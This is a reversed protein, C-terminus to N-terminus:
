AKMPRSLSQSSFPHKGFWKIPKDRQWETCRWNRHSTRKEGTPPTMRVFSFAHDRGDSQCATIGAWRHTSRLAPQPRLPPPPPLHPSLRSRPLSPASPSLLPAACPPRAAQNSRLVSARSPADRAPEPVASLCAPSRAPPSPTRPQPGQTGGRPTRAASIQTLPPRACGGPSSTLLQRPRGPARAPTPSPRGPDPGAAPRADGRGGDGSQRTKRMRGPAAPRAPRPPPPRPVPEPSHADAAVAPAGSPADRRATGEVASGEARPRRLTPPRGPRGPIGLERSVCRAARPHGRGRTGPEDKKEPAEKSYGTLHLATLATRASTTRGPSARIANLLFRSGKCRARTGQDAAEGETRVCQSPHRSHVWPVTATGRPPPPPPPVLFHLGSEWFFFFFLLSSSAPGGKM